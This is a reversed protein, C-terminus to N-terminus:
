KVNGGDKQIVKQNKELTGKVDLPKSFAMLEDVETIELQAIKSEKYGLIRGNSEIPEGKSLVNFTQGSQIGHKKGLNIIVVDGVDAIRGKLPYKDRITKAVTDALSAALAFPDTAGIDKQTHTLPLRTTEVDIARLNLFKDAGFGYLSGTLILRSAFLRGLKTQTDPDALESSGLKLESMVKDLIARDVVNINRGQLERSFEQLLIADFGVRGVLNEASNDQFPLVSLAMVPSTWDDAPRQDARGKQELYRASLEKVSEDIYKQRQLDQQQAMGERAQRLLAQTLKDQPNIASARELLAAAKKPDGMEKLLVAHNSLAAVSSPDEKEAKGYLQAAGAPNKKREANAAAVYANSKQWSFDATNKPDAAVELSREAESIKGSLALARGKILHAASRHPATTIIALAEKLAGETDGRLLRIEALGERGMYSVEPNKDAALGSFSKEAEALKGERLMQYGLETKAIVAMGPPPHQGTGILITPAATASKNDGPLFFFEGELSTNEWPIQQGESDLRVGLRVRKFVEEIRLGPQQMATLFHQTYLGNQGGGDSATSGPATSFAIISGVPADMQALGGSGSRSAKAFPNNRCADLVVINMNNKAREMKDLVMNTDVAQYAVDDERKISSGVPILYNKGKVQMGHGAYYFLGVGGKTRLEDGFASTAEIMDKQTANERKIVKFGEKELTKAMARADNVPNDLPGEKYTSNGIVLATRSEAAISASPYLALSGIAGSFVCVVLRRWFLM